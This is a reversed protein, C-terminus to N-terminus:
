LRVVLLLPQQCPTKRPNVERTALPGRPPAPTSSTRRKIRSEEPNKERIIITREITKTYDSFAIFYNNSRQFVSPRSTPHDTIITREKTKTYDSFAIFYNNSRRFVSPRSTPRDTKVSISRKHKHRRKRRKKTKLTTTTTRFFIDSMNQWAIHSSSLLFVTVFTVVYSRGVTSDAAAM